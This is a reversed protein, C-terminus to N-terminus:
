LEQDYYIKYYKRGSDDVGREIKERDGHIYIHFNKDLKLVSKFVRAQKKVADASIEFRDELDVVYHPFGLQFCVRRADQFDDLTCCRGLSEQSPDKAFLNMSVGVVQFGAAQLLAAMVSSDVGGSMAALIPEGPTLGPSQRLAAIAQELLTPRTM